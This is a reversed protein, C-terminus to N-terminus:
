QKGELFVSNTTKNLLCAAEKFPCADMKNVFEALDIKQAKLFLLLPEVNTTLFESCSPKNQSLFKETWKKVNKKIDGEKLTIKGLLIQKIFPRFIKRCPSEKFPSVFKKAEILKAWLETLFQDDTEWGPHYRNLSKRIAKLQSGTYGSCKVWTLCRDKIDIHKNFPEFLKHSPSKLTQSNFYDENTLKSWVEQVLKKNEAWGPILANLTQLIRDENESTLSRLGHFLIDGKSLVEIFPKFAPHTLNLVSGHWNLLQQILERKYEKDNEWGKKKANLLAILTDPDQSYGWINVFEDLDFPVTKTLIKFLMSDTEQSIRKLFSNHMILYNWLKPKSLSEDEKMCDFLKSLLDLNLTSYWLVPAIESLPKSTSKFLPGFFDLAPDEVINTNKKNKAFTMWLADIFNKDSEWNNKHIKLVDLASSVGHKLLLGNIIQLFLNPDKFGKWSKDVTNVFDKLSNSGILMRVLEVPSINNIFEKFPSKGANQAILKIVDTAIDGDLYSIKSFDILTLIDKQLSVSKRDTAKWLRFLNNLENHAFPRFLNFAPTESYFSTSFPFDTQQAKLSELLKKYDFAETSSSQTKRQIATHGSGVNLTISRTALTKKDTITITISGLDKELDEKTATFTVTQKESSLLSGLDEFNEAKIEFLYNLAAIINKISSKVEYFLDPYKYTISGRGNKFNPDSLFFYLRTRIDQNNIDENAVLEVFKNILTKEQLKEPLLNQHYKSNVGPSLILQLIAWIGTECCDGISVMENSPLTFPIHMWNIPDNKQACVFLLDWISPNEFTQACISKYIDSTYSIKEWVDTEIANPDVKFWKKEETCANYFGKIFNLYEMRTTARMVALANLLVLPITKDYSQAARMAKTFCGLLNAIQGAPLESDQALTTIKPASLASNFSPNNANHLIATIEKKINKQLAFAGFKGLTELSCKGYFGNKTALIPDHNTVQNFMQHTLAVLTHKQNGYRFLNAVIGKKALFGIMGNLCYDAVSANEKNVLFDTAALQGWTLPYLNQACILASLLFISFSKRIIANLM